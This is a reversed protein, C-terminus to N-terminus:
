EMRKDTCQELFALVDERALLRRGPLRYSRSIRGSDLYRYLTRVGIKLLRAAEQMTMYDGSEEAAQESGGYNGSEDDDHKGCDGLLGLKPCAVNSQGRAHNDQM